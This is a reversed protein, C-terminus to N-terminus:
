FCIPIESAHRLVIALWIYVEFYQLNANKFVFVEFNLQNKFINKSTFGTNMISKGTAQDLLWDQLTGQLTIDYQTYAVQWCFNSKVFKINSVQVWSNKGDHTVLTNIKTSVNINVRLLSIVHFSPKQMQSNPFIFFLANFEQHLNSSRNFSPSTVQHWLHGESGHDLLTTRYGHMTRVWCNPPM